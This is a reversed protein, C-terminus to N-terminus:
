IYGEKRFWTAVDEQDREVWQVGILAKELGQDIFRQYAKTDKGKFFEETERIRQRSSVGLITIKIIDIFITDYRSYIHDFNALM